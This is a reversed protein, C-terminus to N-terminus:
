TAQTELHKLCRIIFLNLYSFSFSVTKAVKAAALTLDIIHKIEDLFEFFIIRRETYTYYCRAKPVLASKDGINYKCYLKLYDERRLMFRNVLYMYKRQITAVELARDINSIATNDKCMAILEQNNLTRFLDVLDASPRSYFKADERFVEDAIKDRLALTLGSWHCAALYFFALVALMRAQFVESSSNIYLLDKTGCKIRLILLESNQFPM